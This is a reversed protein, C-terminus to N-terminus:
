RTEGKGGEQMQFDISSKKVLDKEKSCADERCYFQSCHRMLNQM